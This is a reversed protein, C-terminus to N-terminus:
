SSPPRPPRPREGQEVEGPGYLDEDVEELPPATMEQADRDIPPKRSDSEKGRKGMMVTAILNIILLIFLIILFLEIMFFREEDEDRTSRDEVSDQINDEAQELSQDLEELDGLIEELKALQDLTTYIDNLQKDTSAEFEDMDNVVDMIDDVISQNHGSLNGALNILFTRLEAIRWKEIQGDLLQNLLDIQMSHNQEMDRDHEGLDDEIEGLNDKLDSYFNAVSVDLEDLQRHLTDNTATLNTEIENLVFDLWQQLSDHETTMTNLLNTLENSVSSNMDIIDNTISVLASQIENSLSADVNALEGLINTEADTVRGLLSDNVGSLQTSLDDIKPPLTQNLYDIANLLETLNLNELITQVIVVRTRIDEITMNLYDITSEIDNLPNLPYPDLVDPVGDNDDDLDDMDGINDGDFDTDPIDEVVYSFPSQNPVEDAAAIKYYYTTGRTLGYGTFSITGAPVNTLWDFTVNDTSIYIVYSDLDPESNSDWSLILSYGTFPNDVTLGTPIDPPITDYWSVKWGSLFPSDSINGSVYTMLRITPHVASDIASIDIDSGSLNEFGTIPLFTTGDLISVTIVQDFGDDMKDIELSDWTKDSPLMIETSMLYGENDLAIIEIDDTYITSPGNLCHTGFQYKVSEVDFDWDCIQMGDFYFILAGDHYTVKFDHWGSVSTDILIETYNIFSILIYNNVNNQQVGFLLSDDTGNLVFFHYYMANGSNTHLNQRWTLNHNRSISENNQIMEDKWTSPPPSASSKLQNGEIELIYGDDLVDWLTSNPPTGDTGTFSDYLITADSLKIDGADLTLNEWSGIGLTDEFGDEWYGQSDGDIIVPAAFTVSTLFLSGSILAATILYIPITRRRGSKCTDTYYITAVM